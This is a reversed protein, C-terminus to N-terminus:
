RAKAVTTSAGKVILSKVADTITVTVEPVYEALRKQEAKIKAELEPSSWFGFYRKKDAMDDAGKNGVFYMRNYKQLFSLSSM